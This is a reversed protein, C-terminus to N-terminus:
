SGACRPSPAGGRRPSSPSSSHVRPLVSPGGPSLHRRTCVVVVPALALPAVVLTVALVLAAHRVTARSSMKKAHYCMRMSGEAFPAPAVKLRAVDEVWAGGVWRLRLVTEEPREHLDLHALPDAEFLQERAMRAGRKWLERVRARM